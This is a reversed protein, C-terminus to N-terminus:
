PLPDPCPFSYAPFLFYIPDASTVNFYVLIQFTAGTKSITSDAMEVDVRQEKMNKKQPTPLLPVATTTEPVYDFRASQFEYKYLFPIEPSPHQSELLPIKHLFKWPFSM